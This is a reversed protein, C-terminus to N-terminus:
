GLPTLAARVRPFDFRPVARRAGPDWGGGADHRDILGVDEHGVLRAGSAWDAPWSHRGALDIGLAILALYQSETYLGGSTPSPLGRGAGCPILEVGVYIANVSTGPFLHQPSKKGPWARDWAAVAATSCKQRWAGSLYAERKDAGGGVHWGIVDDPLIQAIKGTHGIVYHAANPGRAYIEIAVELPDRNTRAAKAPVGSGTTHVVLGHVPAKRAGHAAASTDGVSAMALPSRPNM